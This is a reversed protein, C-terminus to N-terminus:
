DMVHRKQLCIDKATRQASNESFGIKPLKAGPVQYIRGKSAIEFITEATPVSLACRGHPKAHAFFIHAAGYSSDALVDLSHRRGDPDVVTALFIVLINYGADRVFAFEANRCM